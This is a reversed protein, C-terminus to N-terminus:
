GSGEAEVGTKRPWSMKHDPLIPVNPDEKRYEMAGAARRTEIGPSNGAANKAAALVRPLVDVLIILDMQGPLSSPILRAVLCTRRQHNAKPANNRAIGADRTASRPTFRAAPASLKAMRLSVYGTGAGVEAVTMGTRLGIADLAGEVNEESEREPRELWDAGRFGHRQRTHRGTLSADSTFAPGAGSGCGPPCPACRRAHWEIAKAGIGALNNSQDHEFAPAAKM